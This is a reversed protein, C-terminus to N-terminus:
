FEYRAPNLLGETQINKIVKKAEGSLMSNPDHILPVLTDNVAVAVNLREHDDACRSLITYLDNIAATRVLANFSSTEAVYCLVAAIKIVAFPNNLAIKKLDNVVGISEDLRDEANINATPHFLRVIDDAIPGGDNIIYGVYALSVLRFHEPDTNAPDNIVCKFMKINTTVQVKEGAIAFSATAMFIATLFVRIM